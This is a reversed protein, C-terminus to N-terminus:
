FHYNEMAINFLWITYIYIALQTFQAIVMHELRACLDSIEQSSEMSVQPLQVKGALAAPPYAPRRLGFVRPPLVVAVPPYAYCLSKMAM